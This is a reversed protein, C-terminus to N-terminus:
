FEDDAVPAAGKARDEVTLGDAGFRFMHDEGQLGSGVLEHKAVFFATEMEGDLDVRRLKFFSIGLRRYPRGDRDDSPESRMEM